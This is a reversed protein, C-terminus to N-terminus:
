TRILLSQPLPNCDLRRGHWRSAFITELFLHFLCYHAGSVAEKISKLKRLNLAKELNPAGINNKLHHFGTLGFFIIASLVSNYQLHLAAGFVLHVSLFFHGLRAWSFGVMKSTRLTFAASSSLSYFVVYVRGRWLFSFKRFPIAWHSKQNRKKVFIFLGLGLYSRRLPGVIKASRSRGVMNSRGSFPLSFLGLYPCSISSM